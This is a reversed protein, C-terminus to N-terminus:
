RVELERGSHYWWCEICSDFHECLNCNPPCEGNAVHLAIEALLLDNMNDNEPM